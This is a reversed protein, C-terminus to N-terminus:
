EAACEMQFLVLADIGSANRREPPLQQWPEILPLLLLILLLGQWFLLHGKPHKLTLAALAGLSVLVFIQVSWVVLTDLLFSANM